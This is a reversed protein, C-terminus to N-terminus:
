NIKEAELISFNGSILYSTLNDTIVEEEEKTSFNFLVVKYINHERKRNRKFINLMKKVEKRKIERKHNYYLM